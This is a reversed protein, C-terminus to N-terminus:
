AAAVANVGGAHGTLPQGVAVGAVPDWVRAAGDGGGTALLVRGGPGRVAAVTVVPSDLAALVSSPPRWRTWRPRRGTDPDPGAPQHPDAALRAVALSLARSPADADALFPEIAAWAALTTHAPDDRIPLGLMGRVGASTEWPLFSATVHRDDLVDGLAAHRALHRRLYPHPPQAPNDPV